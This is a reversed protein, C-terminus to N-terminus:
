TLCKEIWEIQKQPTSTEHMLAKANEGIRKCEDLNDKCWEIKEILDSYDPKCVIYHENAILPRNWSVYSILKPSITCAGLFMYQGQGRDLMDNRAGPVCVSVLCNNIKNFFREQSTRSFDVKGKYEDSLLQQVHKRRAIAAGGPSQNNLIKFNAQPNYSVRLKKLMAWDHFNVPSFSFMNPIDEYKDHYHFKFISDFMSMQETNLTKIHDSFDICVRKDNVELEFATKSKFNDNVDVLEINAGGVSFINLVYKFHVYYYRHFVKKWDDNYKPFKVIM